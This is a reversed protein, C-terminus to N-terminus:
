TRQVQYGARERDLTDATVGRARLVGYQNRETATKPLEELFEVYRPVAYHAM